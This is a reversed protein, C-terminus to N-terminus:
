FPNQYLNIIKKKFKVIYLKIIIKLKVVAMSMAAIIEPNAKFDPSFNVDHTEILSISM